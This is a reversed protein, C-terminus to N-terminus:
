VCDDRVFAALKKRSTVGYHEPVRQALRVGCLLFRACRLNVENHTRPVLRPSELFSLPIVIVLSLSKLMLCSCHDSLFLPPCKNNRVRFLTARHAYLKKPGRTDTLHSNEDPPPCTAPWVAQPPCTRELFQHPVDESPSAKADEMADARLPPALGHRRPPPLGPERGPHLGSKFHSEDGRRRCDFSPLSM